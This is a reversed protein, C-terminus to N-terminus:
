WEKWDPLWVLFSGCMRIWLISCQCVSDKQLRLTNNNEVLLIRSTQHCSEKECKVSHYHRATWQSWIWYWLHTHNWIFNLLRIPCKIYTRTLKIYTRTLKIAKEEVRWKCHGIVGFYLTSSFAILCSFPDCYKVQTGQLIIRMNYYKQLPNGLNFWVTIQLFSYLYIEESIQSDWM